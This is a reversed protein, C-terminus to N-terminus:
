RKNIVVGGMYFLHVIKAISFTCDFYIEYLFAVLRRGKVADISARSLECIGSDSNLKVPIRLRQLADTLSMQTSTTPLLHLATVYLGSFVFGSDRNEVQRFLVSLEPDHRIVLFLM